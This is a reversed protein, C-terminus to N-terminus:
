LSELRIGGSGTNVRLTPGGGNLTGNLQHRDEGVDGQTLLPLDSHIGGSGTTMRLTARTARPLRLHVSGSGTTIASEQLSSGDAVEVDVSGNGSHADIRSFQGEIHMAGNGTSANLSGSLGNGTLSGNGSHLRLEGGANDITIAGNGTNMAINGRVGALSLTGNGSHLDLAAEQPVEVTLEPGKGTNWEWHHNEDQKLVFRVHSGSQSEEITFRSRDSGNMELHLHIERCGGCSRTRVSGNGIQAELEARGQVPYHKDFTQPVEAVACATVLLCLLLLPIQRM